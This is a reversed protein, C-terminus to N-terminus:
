RVAFHQQNLMTIAGHREDLTRGTLRPKIGKPTGTTGSSYLMLEGRPERDPRPAAPASNMTTAARGCGPGEEGDIVVIAPSRGLNQVAERVLPELAPTTVVSRTGSDRLVHEMEQSTLHWNVPTLYIGSRLAAWVGDMYGVCNEAVIAVHDGM